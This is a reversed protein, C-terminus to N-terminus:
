LRRSSHSTSIMRKSASMEYMYAISAHGNSVQKWLCDNREKKNNIESKKEKELIIENMKRNKM